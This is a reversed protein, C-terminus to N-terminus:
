KKSPLRSPPRWFQLNSLMACLACWDTGFSPTNQEHKIVTWGIYVIDLLFMYCCYWSCFSLCILFCFSVSSPVWIHGWVDLSPDLLMLEWAQSPLLEQCCSHIVQCVLSLSIVMPCVSGGVSNAGFPVLMLRGLFSWDDNAICSCISHKSHQLENLFVINVVLLSGVFYQLISWSFYAWVFSPILLM